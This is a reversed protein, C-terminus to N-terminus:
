ERLPVDATPVDGVTPWRHDLLERARDPEMPPVHLLGLLWLADAALCRRLGEGHLGEAQDEALLRAYWGRIHRQLIGGVDPADMLSTLVAPALGGAAGRTM